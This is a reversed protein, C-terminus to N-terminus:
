TRKHRPMRLDNKMLIRALERFCDSIDDEPEECCVDMAVEVEEEPVENLYSARGDAEPIFYLVDPRGAPSDENKSPRIKHLNWHQAVRQLEARSVPMFCFKLCKDDNLLGEDRLDKFFSIWWDSESKRLFAWWEEIRQNSVSKGYLVSKDGRFADAANCRYQCKRYRCRWSM